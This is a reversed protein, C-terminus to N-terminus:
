NSYYTLNFVRKTMWVSVKVDLRATAFVLHGSATAAYGSWRTVKSSADCKGFCRRRNRARLMPEIGVVCYCCRYDPEYKRAREFPRQLIVGRITFFFSLFVFLCLKVYLDCPVRNFSRYLSFTEKVIFWKRIWRAADAGLGDFKQDICVDAETDNWNAVAASHSFWGNLLNVARRVSLSTSFTFTNRKLLLIRHM